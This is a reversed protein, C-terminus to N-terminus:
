QGIEYFSGGSYGYRIVAEGDKYITIEQHCGFDDVVAELNNTNEVNSRYYDMGALALQDNSNATTGFSCCSGGSPIWGSQQPSVTESPRASLRSNVISFVLLVAVIILFISVLKGFNKNM